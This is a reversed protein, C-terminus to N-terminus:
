DHRSPVTVTHTISFQVYIQNTKFNFMDITITGLAHAYDLKLPTTQCVLSRWGDHLVNYRDLGRREKKM